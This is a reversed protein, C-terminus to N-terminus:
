AKLPEPLQENSMVKRVHHRVIDASFPKGIFTAGDPMDGPAPEVQGSAVVIAIHPWRDATQCALAFGDSGDPMQVDTFLLQVAEHHEALVDLAQAVSSAELMQFGAEELISSADMLILMDDDVVLAYPPTAPNLNSVPM